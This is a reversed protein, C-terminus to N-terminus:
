LQIQAVIHRTELWAWYIKKNRDFVFRKRVGHADVEVIANELPIRQSSVVSVRCLFRQHSVIQNM